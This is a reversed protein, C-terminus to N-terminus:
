GRGVMRHFNDMSAWHWYVFPVWGKHRWDVFVDDPLANFKAEDVIRLGTLRQSGGGPLDLRVEKSELLDHAKVAEVFAQTAPVQQQFAACFDSAQRTQESPAGDQFLPAADAHEALDVVLDSAADIYLVTEGGQGGQGIAFPYRRVYAPVYAGAAWQGNEDVFLNKGDQYGLVALPMASDDDAFVIPFHAAALRFEQAHLVAAHTHAAFRFNGPRRLGHGGYQAATLPRPDAYFLPKGEPAEAGSAPGHAGDGDHAKGREKM